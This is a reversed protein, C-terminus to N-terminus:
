YKKTFELKENNYKNNPKTKFNNKWKSSKNIYLYIIIM